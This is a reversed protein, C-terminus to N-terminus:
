NSSLARIKQIEDNYKNYIELKKNRQKNKTEAPQKKIWADEGETIYYNNIKNFEKTLLKVAVPSNLIGNRRIVEINEKYFTSNIFRTM